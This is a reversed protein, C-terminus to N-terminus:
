LKVNALLLGVGSGVCSCYRDVSCSGIYELVGRVCSCAETKRVCAVDVASQCVGGLVNELLSDRSKLAANGSQRGSGASRCDGVRDLRKCLLAFIDHSGVSDVATGVVQQRVCKRKVAHGCLEDIGIHFAGELRSDVLVSLRQVNFGEAVRVGINRVDLLESLDRM